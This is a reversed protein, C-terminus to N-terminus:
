RGARRFRVVVAARKPAHEAWFRQHLVRPDREPYWSGAWPHPYVTWCRLCHLQGGSAPLGAKHGFWQCLMSM